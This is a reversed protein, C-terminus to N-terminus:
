YPADVDQAAAAHRRRLRRAGRVWLPRMRRTDWDDRDKSTVELVGKVGTPSNTFNMTIIAGIKGGSGELWISTDRSLGPFAESWGVELVLAPFKSKYTWITANPEKITGEYPYEFNDFKPSPPRSFYENASEPILGQLVWRAFEVNVWSTGNGHIATPLDITLTRAVSNFSYERPPNPGQSTSKIVRLVERFITSPDM